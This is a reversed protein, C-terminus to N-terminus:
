SYNLKTQYKPVREKIEDFYKLFYCVLFVFQVNQGFQFM